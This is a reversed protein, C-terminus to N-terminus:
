INRGYCVRRAPGRISPPRKRAAQALPDRHMRISDAQHLAGNHAVCPPLQFPESGCSTGALATLSARVDVDDLSGAALIHGDRVAVHTARPRSPNMTIIDKAAFVTTQSM